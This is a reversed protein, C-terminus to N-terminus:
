LQLFARLPNHPDASLTGNLLTGDVLEIHVTLGAMASGAVGTGGDTDCDFDLQQGTQFMSGIFRYTLRQAANGTGVDISFGANENGTACSTTHNGPYTYDLGTTLDSGNRYTGPCTVGNGADHRHGRLDQDIDFLMSHQGPETTLTWDLAVSHIAAHGGLHRIRWFGRHPDVDFSNAGVAEVLIGTQPMAGRFFAENTSTIPDALSLDVMLAQARLLLGNSVPFTPPLPITQIQGTAMPIQAFINTPAALSASNHTRHEILVGAGPYIGTLDTLDDTASYPPFNFITWISQGTQGASPAIVHLGLLDGSGFEAYEHGFWNGNTGINLRCDDWGARGNGLHIRHVALTDPNGQSLSLLCFESSWPAHVNATNSAPSLGGGLAGSVCRAVRNGTPQGSGGSRDIEILDGRAQSGDIWLNGTRPDIALGTGSWGANTFSGTINGQIDFEFIDSEHNVTYFRGAGGAAAGDWALGRPVGIATLISGTIPQTITQGGWTTALSGAQTLISIGAESGGAIHVGDTCLDRMGWTSSSHIAPQALTAVVNNASDVAYIKHNSSGSTDGTTIFTLSGVDACGLAAQGGTLSEINITRYVGGFGANNQPQQAHVSPALWCLLTLALQTATWLRVPRRSAPKLDPPYDAQTRIPRPTQIPDFM